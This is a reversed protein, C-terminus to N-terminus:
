RASCPRTTRSRRSKRSIPRGRPSSRRATTRSRRGSRKPSSRHSRTCRACSRTSRSRCCRARTEQQGEAKTAEVYWDCWRTGASSCCPIRPSASRSGMTRASCRRSAATCSPLSGSTRSRSSRAGRCRAAARCDKRSRARTGCRTGCNTAFRRAEDCYREDFRLEQIRAPVPAPHRLAHRRRRVEARPPWRTSQTESRNFMKRGHMDFVLPSVFVNEFPLKGAFRLGLMVMRTVWLFIIDRSTVMVQNPYWHELEPTARALRSDLVAMVRASGRTSREPDRRLEETGYAQQAIRRAEAEGEAVVVDDNPTYWVPLQHGWWVQRSLGLRSRRWGAAYTRGFREPVFRLPRQPLSRPGAQGATGVTGFWQLSCRSWWRTRARASRCSRSTRNREVLSGMVRLDDVIRKRADFRDFGVYAHM